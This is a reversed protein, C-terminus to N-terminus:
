LDVIPHSLKTIFEGVGCSRLHDALFKCADMSLSGVEKAKLFPM